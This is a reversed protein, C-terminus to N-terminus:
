YIGIILSRKIKFQSLILLIVGPDTTEEELSRCRVLFFVNSRPYIKNLTYASWICLLTETSKLSSSTSVFFLDKVLLLHMRLTETVCNFLWTYQATFDSYQTTRQRFIYTPTNLVSEANNSVRKAINKLYLQNKNNVM